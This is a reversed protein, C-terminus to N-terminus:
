GTPNNGTLSRMLDDALQQFTKKIEVASCEVLMKVPWREIEDPFVACRNLAVAFWYLDFGPDKQAAMDLLPQLRSNQILYYLDVADRPEARGFYALLKDIQIDQFDNIWVGLTSLVPPAFRFPADLALDVKLQEKGQQVLFEVYSAFRRNVRIDLGYETGSKEIQYSFPLILPEVTTFLDLDYSIRHGMYFEALATGGTLYFQEQDPIRAFLRLFAEQIPSLLGKGPLM